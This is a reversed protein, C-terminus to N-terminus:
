WGTPVGGGPAFVYYLGRRKRSKPGKITPHKVHGDFALADEGLVKM